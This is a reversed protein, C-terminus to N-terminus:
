QVEKEEKEAGFALLFGLELLAFGGYLLMSALSNRQAAVTVCLLLAMASVPMFVRKSGSGFAFGALELASVTLAAVALIEVYYEALVPNAADARYLIILFSILSCVPVLLTASLLEHGRYLTFVTYLLCFASVVAAVYLLMTGLSGSYGAVSAVVSAPLLFAGAVASFVAAMNRFDFCDAVAKVTGEARPLRRGELALWVAAAALVAALLIGCLNGAVPLGSEDFGTLMQGVRLGAAAVTFAALLLWKKKNM